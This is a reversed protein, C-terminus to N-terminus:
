LRNWQAHILFPFTFISTSQSMRSFLLLLLLITYLIRNGCNQLVYACIIDLCHQHYITIFILKFPLMSHAALPAWLLTLITQGWFCCRLRINKETVKVELVFIDHSRFLFWLCVCFLFDILFQFRFRCCCITHKNLLVLFRFVLM